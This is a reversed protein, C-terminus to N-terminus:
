VFAFVVILMRSMRRAIPVPSGSSCFPTTPNGKSRIVDFCVYWRMADVFSAMYMQTVATFITLWHVSLVSNSVAHGNHEGAAQNM